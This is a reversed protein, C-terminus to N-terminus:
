SVSASARLERLADAVEQVDLSMAATTRVFIPERLRSLEAEAEFLFQSFDHETALAITRELHTRAKDPAGFRRYGKGVNLEFGTSLFPPLSQTQLQRRYLEFLVESGTESAIELLNLTASWRIYQEQATVSLVLYADTAASFVGLTLFAGAIDSLIRDRETPSESHELAEYGLRIALDYQGSLTAVGSRDHLARSRVERMEAGTARGITEDLIAAARPLNGHTRAIQAEGIRARLVGVMDGAVTAVTAATEFADTADDIRNLHRYCQGLRLHAAISADSDEMPHLHALVSQYVDVALTWQADYELAKGYAMLPTVVVHFDPKGEELADVVRDLITRITTGDSMAEIACRVSRVSWEVDSRNTGNELWTDVLRLVVLGATSAHWDPSGEERGAIDEFFPLHLLKPESDFV